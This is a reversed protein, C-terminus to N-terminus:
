NTLFYRIFSLFVKQSQTGYVTRYGPPSFSYFKEEIQQIAQLVVIICRYCMFKMCKLNCLDPVQIVKVQM